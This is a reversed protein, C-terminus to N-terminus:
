QYKDLGYCIILITAVCTLFPCVLVPAPCLCMRISGWFLMWEDFTQGARKSGDINLWWEAMMLVKKHTELTEAVERISESWITNHRSRPLRRDSVQAGITQGQWTWKRERYRYGDMLIKDTDKGPKHLGKFLVIPYLLTAPKHSSTEKSWKTLDQVSIRFAVGYLLSDGTSTICM